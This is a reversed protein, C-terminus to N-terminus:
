SLQIVAFVASEPDTLVAMRGFDTDLPAGTLEGGAQVARDVTAALDATAFYPLWHAPTGAPMEPHLEGTGAVPRGAAYLAAYRADAYQEGPGGFASTTGIEEARYGFVATYFAKAADYGRSLAESWVLTGPRSRRDAGLHDTPQWLGFIAGNPDVAIAMRGQTGVRTPGVLLRGGAAAVADATREVHETTLYTTWRSPLDETGPHKPRIGGVDEGDLRCVWYDKAARHECQWGFLETYFRVAARADDAALDVWNPTGTPWPATRQAM